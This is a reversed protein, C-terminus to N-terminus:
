SREAAAPSAAELWSGRQAQLVAVEARLRAVEGADAPASSGRKHGGDRSMFWMMLAMGIPCALLPLAVLLQNM